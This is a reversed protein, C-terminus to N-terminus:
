SKIYIVLIVISVVSDLATIFIGLKTFIVNNNKSISIREKLLLGIFGFFIAFILIFLGYNSKSSFIVAIIWFIYIINIISHINKKNIIENIFILKCIEYIIFFIALSKLITEM